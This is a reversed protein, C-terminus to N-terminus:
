DRPDRNRTAAILTAIWCKQPSQLHLSQLGDHRRRRRATAAEWLSMATANFGRGCVPPPCQQRPTVAHAVRRRNPAVSSHRGKSMERGALRGAVSSTTPPTGFGLVNNASLRICGVYKRADDAIRIFEIRLRVREQSHDERRTPSITAAFLHRSNGGSFCIRKACSAEEASLM